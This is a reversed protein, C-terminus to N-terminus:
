KRRVPKWMNVDDLYIDDWRKCNLWWVHLFAMFKFPYYRKHWPTINCERYELKHM